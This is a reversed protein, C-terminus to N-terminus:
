YNGLKSNLVSLRNSVQLSPHYRGQNGDKLPRGQNGDIQYSTTSRRQYSYGDKQYRLQYKAQPCTTHDDPLAMRLIMKVSTTYDKCGTHGYLHVGDYRGSKYDQYRAFHADDTRSSLLTHRGVLIKDKLPSIVWLKNLTTNALRALESKLTTPDVHPQDFRPTHEMIVVKSLNPHKNLSAQALNLMNQCSM